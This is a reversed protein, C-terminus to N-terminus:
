IILKKKEAYLMREFSQLLKLFILPVLYLTATIADILGRKSAQSVHRSFDDSPKGEKIFLFFPPGLCIKAVSHFLVYM